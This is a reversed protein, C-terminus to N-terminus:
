RSVAFPVIIEMKYSVSNGNHMAPIWIPSETVVRVAEDEMGYGNLSRYKVNTVFGKPNIVFDVSALYYGPPAGKQGPIDRRTNQILYEQFTLKGPFVPKVDVRDFIKGEQISDGKVDFKILMKEVGLSDKVTKSSLRGKFYSFESSSIQRGKEFFISVLKFGMSDWLIWEGEELGNKYNGEQKLQGSTFYESYRGELQNLMSDKFHISMKLSGKKIDFCDVLFLSSDKLGKGLYTAATKEVSAMNSDLFYLYQYSQGNATIAWLIFLYATLFITKM